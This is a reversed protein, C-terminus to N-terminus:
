SALIIDQNSSIHKRKQELLEISSKIAKEGGKVAVYM